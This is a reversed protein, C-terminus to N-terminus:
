SERGMIVERVGAAAGGGKASEGSREVVKGAVLEDGFGDSYSVVHHDLGQSEDSTLSIEQDSNLRGVIMERELIVIPWIEFQFERTTTPGVSIDAKDVGGAGGM